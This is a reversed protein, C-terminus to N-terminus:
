IRGLYDVSMKAVSLNAEPLNAVSNNRSVDQSSVDQSSIKLQSCHYLCSIKKKEGGLIAFYKSIDAFNM